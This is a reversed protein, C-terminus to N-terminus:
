SKGERDERILKIIGEISLRSFAEGLERAAKRLIEEKRRKVEEALAKRLVESINLGLKEADEKLEKPVRVSIVVSM